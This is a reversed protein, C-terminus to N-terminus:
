TKVKLNEYWIDTTYTYEYNNMEPSVYHRKGIWTSVFKESENNRACGLDGLKIRDDISLFINSKKLTKSFKNLSKQKLKNKSLQKKKSVLANHRSTHYKEFTLNQSSIHDSNDL